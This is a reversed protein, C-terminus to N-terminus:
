SICRMWPTMSNSYLLEIFGSDDKLVGEPRCEDHFESDVLIVVSDNRLGM